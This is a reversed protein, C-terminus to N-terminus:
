LSISYLLSDRNHYFLEHEEKMSLKEAVRRSASNRKDIVAVVRHIDLEDRAYELVAQCSETAYGRGWYASDMYYSLMIECEDEVMQSEIGCRGILQGNEKLFVGWLGFGYFPYVFQIYAALKAKEVPLEDDFDDIFEQIAPQSCINCMDDIDNETLERIILNNTTAIPNM